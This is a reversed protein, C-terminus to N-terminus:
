KKQFFQLILFTSFLQIQKAQAQSLGFLNKYLQSEVKSKEKFIDSGEVKIKTKRHFVREVM